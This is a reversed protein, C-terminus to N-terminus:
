TPWAPPKGHDVGEAEIPTFIEFVQPKELFGDRFVVRMGRGAHEPRHSKWDCPRRADGEGIERGSNCQAPNTSIGGCGPCRFRGSPYRKKFERMNPLLTVSELSPFNTRRYYGAAQHRRSKEFAALLEPQGIGLATSYEALIERLSAELEQAGREGAEGSWSARVQQKLAEITDEM